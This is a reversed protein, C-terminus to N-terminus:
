LNYSRSYFGESPALKRSEEAFIKERKKLREKFGEAARKSASTDRKSLEVLKKIDM